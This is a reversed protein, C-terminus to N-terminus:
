DYLHFHTSITRQFIETPEIKQLCGNSKFLDLEDGRCIHEDFSRLYNLYYNFSKAVYYFSVEEPNKLDRHIVRIVSGESVSYNKINRYESHKIEFKRLLRYIEQASLTKKIGFM